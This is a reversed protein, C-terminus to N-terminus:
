KGQERALRNAANFTRVLLLAIVALGITGYILGDVSFANGLVAALLSGAIAGLSLLVSYIGMAAGRGAQAGIADALLSLAAPTFGSEIMVLLATVGGIIWRAAVSEGTLHNLLFLGACVGPMAVLGILLAREATVKPLVVSWATVGISFVLTFWLSVWGIMHPENVFVGALFQGRVPPQTMLFTLTPGLWLGIIANVCLWIPALRRLRPERLARGFGALAAAGGHARSGAASGHFMAACLVYLGAVAAFAGSNWIRWLQSGLLGGLAIGALFSLEYFSMVRARLAPQGETVDTLHALLAPGGAAAGLGELGRSFLFAGARGTLGFLQTAAGGLLAGFTMLWRPAMADSLVGMPISGALETGFSVAGVVGVLAVNVPAGRRAADSLFLGVLIGSAGGAIRLIANALILIALNM